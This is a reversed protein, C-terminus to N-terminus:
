SWDAPHGRAARVCSGCARRVRAAPWAESRRRWGALRGTRIPWRPPAAPGQQVLVARVLQQALDARGLRDVGLIPLPGPGLAVVVGGATPHPRSHGHLRPGGGVGLLSWDEGAEVEWRVAAMVPLDPRDQVMGGVLGVLEVMRPDAILM